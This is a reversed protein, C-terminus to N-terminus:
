YKANLRMWISPEKPPGIAESGEKCLPCEKPAWVPMSHDILSIIKRGGIEVLGSRNVLVLVFPLVIGGAAIIATVTLDVSGGTTLTDECLLVFQGPLFDLDKRSFVMSKKGNKEAKAPSAWFCEERTYASMQDSIFEALKTAGTQPGIVGNISIGEAEGSEGLSELLDCAADRLLVEDSIILRSNFFGGSHIRSTLCVHPRKPNGDHIWLANKKKYQHIWEDSTRYM